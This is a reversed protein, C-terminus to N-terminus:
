FYFLFYIVKFITFIYQVQSLFPPPLETDRHLQFSLSDTLCLACHKVSPSGPPLTHHPIVWFTPAALLEPTWPCGWLSWKLSAPPAVLLVSTHMGGDGARSTVQDSPAQPHGWTWVCPRVACGAWEGGGSLGCLPCGPLQAQGDGPWASREFAPSLGTLIGGANWAGQLSMPCQLSRVVQNPALCSLWPLVRGHLFVVCIVAPHIDDQSMELRFHYGLQSKSWFLRLKHPPWSIRPSLSSSLHAM